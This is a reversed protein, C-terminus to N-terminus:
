LGHPQPTISDSLKSTTEIQGGAGLGFTTCLVLQSPM